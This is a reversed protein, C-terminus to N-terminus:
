KLFESLAAWYRDFAEYQPVHGVGPLEVLKAGFIAHAASKGLQTYDGMTM